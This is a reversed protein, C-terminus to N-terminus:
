GVGQGIYTEIADEQVDQIGLPCAADCIRMFLGRAKRGSAGMDDFMTVALDAGGFSLNSAGTWTAGISTRTV